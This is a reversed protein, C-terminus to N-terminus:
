TNALDLCKSIQCSQYSPLWLHVATDPHRKNMYFARSQVYTLSFAIVYLIVRIMHFYRQGFLFKGTVGQVEPSFSFSCRFSTLYTAHAYSKQIFSVPFSPFNVAAIPISAFSLLSAACTYYLEKLCPFAPSKGSSFAPPCVIGFASYSGTYSPYIKFSNYSLHHLIGFLELSSLYSIIRINCETLLMSLSCPNFCHEHIIIAM